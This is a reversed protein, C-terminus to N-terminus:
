DGLAVVAVLVDEDGVVWSRHGKGWTDELLLIDGPVFRRRTGDGLESETQGRLMFLVQRRPAPHWDGFYGQPVGLFHYETAPSFASAWMPLAPPAYSTEGLELELDEVHSVGEQDAYVRTYKVKNM